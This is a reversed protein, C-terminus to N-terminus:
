EAMSLALWDSRETPLLHLEPIELPFSLGIKTRLAHRSSSLHELSLERESRRDVTAKDMTKM